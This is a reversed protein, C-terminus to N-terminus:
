VQKMPDSLRFIPRAAPSHILGNTYLFAYVPFIQASLDLYPFHRLLDPLTMWIRRLTQLASNVM